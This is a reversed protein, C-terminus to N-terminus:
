PTRDKPADPQRSPHAAAVPPLSRCHEAISRITPFPTLDLEFREANYLQPLLWVDAMTMADGVSYRGDGTRQAVITECAAFGDGIWRRCWAAVGDDNQGCEARLYKLVRLNQLPHIDCGVLHQLERVRARGLPDSPLLPPSPYREELFEAIAASQAVREGEVELVPVLAAPNLARFTAQRHEDENLLVPVYKWDIGKANLVIRIRYSASSRWYGYLKV